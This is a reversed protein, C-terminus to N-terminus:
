HRASWDNGLGEVEAFLQDARWQCIVINQEIIKSRVLYWFDGLYGYKDVNHCTFFCPSGEKLQTKLIEKDQLLLM